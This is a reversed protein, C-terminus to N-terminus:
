KRIEFIGILGHGVGMGPQLQNVAAEAAERKLEEIEKEM